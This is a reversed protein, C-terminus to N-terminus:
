SLHAEMCALDCYGFTKSKNDGYLSSVAEAEIIETGCHLCTLKLWTASACGTCSTEECANTKHLPCTKIFQTM